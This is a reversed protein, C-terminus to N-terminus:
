LKSSPKQPLAVDQIEWGIARIQDDLGQREAVDVAATEDVPEPIAGVTYVSPRLGLRDLRLEGDDRWPWHLADDVPHQVEDVWRGIVWRPNWPARAVISVLWHEPLSCHAFSDFPPPRYLGEDPESVEVGDMPIHDFWELPMPTM